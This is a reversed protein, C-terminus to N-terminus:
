SGIAAQLSLTAMTTSYIRGGATSWRGAPSWTGRHPGDQVRSDLLYATLASTFSNEIFSDAAHRAHALFYWRYFDVDDESVENLAQIARHLRPRTDFSVAGFSDATLICFAGMATLTEPGEPFDEPSRYGFNGKTDIMGKLWLLGRQLPRKDQLLGRKEALSLARLQWVSIGTNASAQEDVYGWGGAPLQQETIFTLASEVARTVPGDPSSERNMAELLAVTAIGHNYMVGRSFAGFHGKDNQNSVIYDIARYESKTGPESRLGEPLGLLTLLSMGTLGVRYEASGDWREPNWSGNLEQNASLWNAARSIAALVVEEQNLQQDHHRDGSPLEEESTSFQQMRLTLLTLAGCMMLFSAAIKLARSLRPFWTRGPPVPVDLSEAAIRSLISSSLDEPIHADPVDNLLSITQRFKEVEDELDPNNSLRDRFAAAAQESLEDRLFSVIDENPSAADQQPNTM